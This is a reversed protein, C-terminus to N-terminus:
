VVHCRLSLSFDRSLALRHYNHRTSSESSSTFSFVICIHCTGDLGVLGNFFRTFGDGLLHNKMYNSKM